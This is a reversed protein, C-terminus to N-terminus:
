GTLYMPPECDNLCQDQCVNLCDGAEWPPRDECVNACENLCLTDCHTDIQPFLRDGPCAPRAPTFGPLTM